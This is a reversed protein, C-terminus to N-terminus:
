GRFFPLSAGAFEADIKFTWVMVDGRDPSSFPRGGVPGAIQYGHLFAVSALPDLPDLWPYGVAAISRWLFELMERQDQGYLWGELHYGIHVRRDGEGRPEWAEGLDAYLLIAPSEDAQPVFDVPRNGDFTFVKGGGRDALWENLYKAGFPDATRSLKDVLKDLFDSFPNTGSFLTPDLTM